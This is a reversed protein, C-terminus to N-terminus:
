EIYVLNFDPMVFGLNKRAVKLTDQFGLFKKSVLM